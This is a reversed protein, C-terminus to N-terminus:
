EDEDLEDLAATAAASNDMGGDFLGPGGPMNGMGEMMSQIESSDMNKYLNAAATMAEAWAASDNLLDEMGPMGGMMSKLMPNNLIMQRSQELMDPNNMYEQFMPSNMMQSMSDLSEKMDPMGGEGGGMSKMLEAMDPMGGGGGGMSQMLEDLKSSDVGAQALYDKMANTTADGGGATVAAEQTTATTAKKSTKTKPAAPVMNLQDGDSVGAERLLASATLKKGGFLVHHEKANGSLQAVREKLEQVTTVDDAIEYKKGRLTVHLDKL